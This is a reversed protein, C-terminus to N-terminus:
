TRLLALPAVLLSILPSLVTSLIHPPVVVALKEFVIRTSENPIPTCQPLDLFTQEKNASDDLAVIILCWLQLSFINLIAGYNM